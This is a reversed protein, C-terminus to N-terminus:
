LCPGCTINPPGKKKNDHLLSRPKSQQQVTNIIELPWTMPKEEGEGGEDEREADAEDAEDENETKVTMWYAKRASAAYTKAPAGSSSISPPPPEDSSDERASTPEILGAFSSAMAGTSAFRVHAGCAKLFTCTRLRSGSTTYMSPNRPGSSVFSTTANLYTEM